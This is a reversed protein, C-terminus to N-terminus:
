DVWDAIFVNFEGPSEAGRDSAFVLKTGDGNFMPFSDFGTGNTVREVEGSEIDVMYLNFSRGQPDHMNSSFIIRRGDPHFYPAFNARGNSTIQRRDSGDANMVFLEVRDPRVLGEELLARYEALETSDTPHHARYVIKSGDASFFPGGDYGPEDTLQRPNSGDADMVFINLDGDRHSTFVIQSGDRSVTAEADYGPNDTIRQLDSGDRRATYLDYGLVPWVYGRSRDPPIPCAPDIEHTSSYLIRDSGAFFYGCTTRGQGTSVRRVNTGDVNMTYIQDCDSEGARTAQFILEGGDGSFYAESNSGGHTLRQMGRLHTEEPNAAYPVAGERAAMEASTTDVGAESEADSGVCGSVALLLTLLALRRMIMIRELITEFTPAPQYLAVRPRRPVTVPGCVFGRIHILCGEAAAVDPAGGRGPARSTSLVGLASRTAAEIL